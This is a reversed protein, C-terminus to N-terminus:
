DLTKSGDHKLLHVYGQFTTMTSHDTMEMIEFMSLHGAECLRSTAEHRLDHFTCDKVKARATLRAFSASVAKADPFQHFLRAEGPAASARQAAIISRAKASLLVVRSRRTKTHERPVRLKMDDPGLNTWRARIIEQVRMATELAFGILAKWDAKSYHNPRDIGADYLRTEEDAALRRERKGSWADPVSGRELNFLHEDIHYRYTKAHWEVATKFAFYFKRITAPAYTRKPVGEPKKLDRKIPQKALEALYREVHQGRFRSIALEGLDERVQLYETVKNDRLPKGTRARHELYDDIIQSILVTKQDLVPKGQDVRTDISRKWAEAEKKTNFRKSLAPEGRRHVRAEYRKRGDSLVIARVGNNSEQRKM